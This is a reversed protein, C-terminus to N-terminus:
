RAASWARGAQDLFIERGMSLVMLPQGSRLRIEQLCNGDLATKEFIKRIEGSLLSLIKENKM